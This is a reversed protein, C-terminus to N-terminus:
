DLLLRLAAIVGAGVAIGTGVIWKILRLELAALEARIATTEARLTDPSVHDSHEAAATVGATIADVQAPSLDAATLTRAFAHSDFM